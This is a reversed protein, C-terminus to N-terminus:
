NLPKWNMLEFGRDDVQSVVKAPVARTGSCRWFYVTAHGTAAMPIMSDNPRSRCWEDGGQSTKGTDARGCNLNAGTMCGM